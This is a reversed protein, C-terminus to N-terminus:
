CCYLNGNKMGLLVGPYEELTYRSTQKSCNWKLLLLLYFYVGNHLDVRSIIAYCSYLYWFYSVFYLNLPM